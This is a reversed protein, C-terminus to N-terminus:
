GQTPLNKFADGDVLIAPRRDKERAITQGKSERTVLKEVFTFDKGRTEFWKEIQAPTRLKRDETEALTMRRNKLARRVAENDAWKRTARTAVLKWGPVPTGEKLEALAMARVAKGWVDAAEALDLLTGTDSHPEVTPLHEMAGRKLPCVPMAPCWMCHPGEELPPNPQSGQAVADQLALTFAHLQKTEVVTTEMFADVRPQIIALMTPLKPDFVDRFTAGETMAAAAYFMLQTNPDGDDDEALVPRRGFKWDLILNHTPGTGIVDVTGFAGDITRIAARQEFDWVDLDLQEIIDAFAAAASVILAIHDFIFPVGDVQTGVLAQLDTGEPDRLYREIVAHLMTGEEAAASGAQKPVMRSYAISGPCALARGATSGGVTDSHATM